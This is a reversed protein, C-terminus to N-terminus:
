TCFSRGRVPQLRSGTGPKRWQRRSAPEPQYSLPPQLTIVSFSLAARLLFIAWTMMHITRRSRNIQKMKGNIRTTMLTKLLLTSMTAFGSDRIPVLFPKVSSLKGAAISFICNQFTKPFESIMVTVAVIRVIRTDEMVAKTMTRLPLHFNQVRIKESIIADITM